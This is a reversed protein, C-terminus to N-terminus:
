EDVKRNMTKLQSIWYGPWLKILMLLYPDSSGEIVVWEEDDDFINFDFGWLGIDKKGSPEEVVHNDVVEWLVKKKDHGFFVVTYKGESSTGEGKCIFGM